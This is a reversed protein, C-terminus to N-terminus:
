QLDDKQRTPAMLPHSDVVGGPLLAPFQVQAWRIIQVAPSSTLIKAQPSTWLVKDMLDNPRYTNDGIGDGDLDFAPNDSWYNGRGNVSWDLYRTGVYKVQNRNDIFANGTMTNGESGATFHIGIACGQFTNGLLKNRNANYIFVCKEPGLRMGGEVAGTAEADDKVGHGSDQIGAMTWRDAPQLRGRVINGSITSSNASNLLLGHDRDGDSINDIIQLRNSFMIAYGVSNGTSVNGSIVSDNTYMYHIAFRLDRFRNGSFVNKKSAMTAIGDRGFSVDNDIVKGGPANWVSIGSGFESMRGDKLGVVVNKRALSNKAGHLYIGFLNGTLTNNEIIAGTATRAAFIGSDLTSLNMGSGTVEIGRVSVEEAEITVVSGEGNGVISAGDEGDLTVPKDIVLPGDYRGPKLRIRDGPAAADLVASLTPGSSPTVIWEAALAASPIAALLAAMWTKALKNWM